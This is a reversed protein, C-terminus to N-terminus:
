RSPGFGDSRCISADASRVGDQPDESPCVRGAKSARTNAGTASASTGSVGPTAVEAYTGAQVRVTDGIAYEKTFEKNYETNFSDGIELPNVLLDLCEMSLWDTYELQNAM